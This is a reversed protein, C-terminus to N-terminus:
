GVLEKLRIHWAQCVACWWRCWRDDHFQTALREVWADVQERTLQTKRCRKMLNGM